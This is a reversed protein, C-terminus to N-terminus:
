GKTVNLGFDFTQVRHHFGALERSRGRGVVGFAQQKEVGEEVKQRPDLTPDVLGRGDRSGRRMQM